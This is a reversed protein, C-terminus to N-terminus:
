RTGKTMRTGFHIQQLEQRAQGSLDADSDLLRTVRDQLDTNLALDDSLLHPRRAVLAWVTHVSLDVYPTTDTLGSTLHRLLASGRWVGLDTAMFLDSSASPAHEGIWYAWYNLNAAECADAETIQRAIFHRLQDRDGQCARAVAISRGAVWTPTWGDHRGLQRLERQEMRSLWARGPSSRDWAAVFYAQRRLLVAAPDDDNGATQEAAMRLQDFVLQRDAPPLAPRVGQEGRRQAPILDRLAPPPTGVLTWALLDSWSRTSVWTALPHDAPDSRDALVHGLFMDVDVALDLHDLLRPHAGLERLRQHIQRLVGVKANALPRAGSEWGTLASVNLRLADAIQEPTQGLQDRILRLVHGAVVGTPANLHPAHGALRLLDGNAGLASDLDTVLDHHGRKKGLEIESIYADGKYVLAGLQLQTLGRAERLRRVAEGFTEDTENAGKAPSLM